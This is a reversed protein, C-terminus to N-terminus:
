KSPSLSRSIMMLGVIFAVVGLIVIAANVDSFLGSWLSDPLLEGIVIMALGIVSAIKGPQTNLQTEVPEEHRRVIPAESVRVDSRFFRTGDESLRGHLHGSGVLDQILSRTEDEGIGLRTSIMQISSLGYQGILTEVQTMENTETELIGTTAMKSVISDCNLQNYSLAVFFPRM